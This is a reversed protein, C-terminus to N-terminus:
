SFPRVLTMFKFRLMLTLSLPFSTWLFQTAKLPFVVSCVDTIRNAPLISHFRECVASKDDNGDHSHNTGDLYIHDHYFNLRLSSLDTSSVSQDCRDDRSPDANDSEFSDHLGVIKHIRVHGLNRRLGVLM